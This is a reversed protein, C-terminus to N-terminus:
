LADGLSDIFSDILQSQDEAKLEREVVKGAIALSIDAIENKADNLAKKKEQAIDRSAKDMIAAAEQNAKRLIEEERSQGRAVAEKVIRESEAQAGTLRQQYEDQLARAEKKAKGADTYLDDIEQQREQIMKLIPGYLFKKGVFFVLLFNVLTFLATWFDISIFEKTPM